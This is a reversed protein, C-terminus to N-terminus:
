RNGRLVDVIWEFLDPDKELLSLPDAYLTDLAQSIIETAQGRYDKGYYASPFEDEWAFEDDDYFESGTIERLLRRGRPDKRARELLLANAAELRKGQLEVSHGLEHVITRVGRGEEPHAVLVGGLDSLKASAHVRKKKAIKVLDRAPYNQDGYFPASFFARKKKRWDIFVTVRWAEPRNKRSVVSEVFTKAEDIMGSFKKQFNREKRIEIQIPDDVKLWGHVQTKFSARVDKARAELPAIVDRQLADRENWLRERVADSTASLIRDGISYNKRWALETQARISQLESELRAKLKEVNERFERGSWQASGTGKPKPPTPRKRAKVRSGKGALERLEELTRERGSFDTLQATTIRGEKWLKWRERGLVDIQFEVPKGKLWSEYTLSGAVEGDMSARIRNPVTDLVKKRKGKAEAILEDWSKTVPFLVSRCRPHYGPPGPFPEQRPSEPLPDGTEPDWIAGSRSKCITSNHAIAGLETM